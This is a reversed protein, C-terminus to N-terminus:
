PMSIALIDEAWKNKILNISDANPALQKAVERLVQEVDPRPLLKGLELGANTLNYIPIKMGSQHKMKAILYTTDSGGFSWDLSQPQHIVCERLSVLGADELRSLMQWEHGRSNMRKLFWDEVCASHVDAFEQALSPSLEALLRISTLSFTGPTRIEGALVKGFINRMRDSSADEAHRHFGNLWDIDPDTANEVENIKLEDIAEAIVAATNQLKRIANPVFLEIAAAMAAPDQKLQEAAAKALETSM